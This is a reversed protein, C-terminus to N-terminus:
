WSLDAPDRTSLYLYVRNVIEDLSQAVQEFSQFGGLEIELFTVVVGGGEIRAARLEAYDVTAFCHDGEKSFTLNSVTRPPSSVFHIGQKPKLIKARGKRTSKKPTSSEQALVPDDQREVVSVSPSDLRTNEPLRFLKSLGQHNSNNNQRASRFFIKRVDVGYSNLLKEFVQVSRPVYSFELSKITAKSVGSAKALKVSDIESNCVVTHLLNSFTRDPLCFNLGTARADLLTTSIVHKINGLLDLNIAKAIKLHDGIYISLPMTEFKDVASIPIGTGKSVEETSLGLRMRLASIEAAISMERLYFDDSEGPFAKEAVMLFEKEVSGFGNAKSSAMSRASPISRHELIEAPDPPMLSIRAEIPQDQRGRIDISEQTIKAIVEDTNKTVTGFAPLSGISEGDGISKGSFLIPFAVGYYKLLSEFKGIDRVNFGNELRRVVDTTVCSAEAVNTINMGLLNRANKLWAAFTSADGPISPADNSLYDTLAIELNRNFDMGLSNFIRVIFPCHIEPSETEFRNVDTAPIGCELAIDRVSKGKLRRIRILLQPIPQVKALFDVAMRCNNNSFTSLEKGPMLISGNRGEQTIVSAINEARSSKTHVPMLKLYTLARSIEESISVGYLSLIMELCWAERSIIGSQILKFDGECIGTLNMATSNKVKPLGKFLKLIQSFGAQPVAINIDPDKDMVITTSVADALISEIDIGYIVFFRIIDDAYEHLEHTELYIVDDIRVLAKKAVETHNVKLEARRSFLAKRLKCVGQRRQPWFEGEDAM